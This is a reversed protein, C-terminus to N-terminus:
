NVYFTKSKMEPRATRDPSNQYQNVDMDNIYYISSDRYIMDGLENTLNVTLIIENKPLSVSDMEVIQYAVDAGAGAGLSAVVGGQQLAKYVGYGLAAISTFTGPYLSDSRNTGHEVIQVGWQVQLGESASVAFGEKTLETILFSRYAKGFDSTDSDDIRFTRTPGNEQSVLGLIQKCSDQALIQWHRAAQVKTQTEIPFSSPKPQQACGFAGLTLLMIFGYAFTRPMLM